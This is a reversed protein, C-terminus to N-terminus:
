RSPAARDDYYGIARVEVGWGIEEGLHAPPHLSAIRIAEARDAAEIILRGSDRLAADHTRCKRVIEDLEAKPLANSKAEDYYGLCLFKV